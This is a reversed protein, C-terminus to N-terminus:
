ARNMIDVTLRVAQRLVIFAVTSVTVLRISEPDNLYTLLETLVGALLSVILTNLQNKLHKRM